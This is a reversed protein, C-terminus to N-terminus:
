IRRGNRRFITIVETKTARGNRRSRNKDPIIEEFSSELHLDKVENEIEERIIEPLQITKGNQSTDGIVLICVGNPKLVRSIVQVVNTMEKKFTSAQRGMEVESIRKYDKEGLFWLRLRNDRSYDLTSMYPPSTIVADISSEHLYKTLASQQFVEFQIEDKLPPNKLVREIKAKLRPIPDRYAYAEPYKEKPFKKKRLYPVLHSAPNSLFGPRQHHLIGLLCGLIFYEKDDKLYMVLKLVEDLTKENFFEKVWLPVNASIDKDIGNTLKNKYIDLKMLAQEVSTPAVLKARTVLCAYPNVDSAIINRLLLRCELPITGSGCFPDWVWGGPKTYELILKRALPSNIKGIYPAIQHLRCGPYDNNRM